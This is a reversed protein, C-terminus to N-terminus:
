DRNLGPSGSKPIALFRNLCFVCQRQKKSLCKVHKVYVMNLLCPKLYTLYTQFLEEKGVDGIVLRDSYLKIKM